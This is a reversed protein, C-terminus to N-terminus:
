PAAFGSDVPKRRFGNPAQALFTNGAVLRRTLFGAVTKKAFLHSECNLGGAGFGFHLLGLFLLYRFFARHVRAEENGRKLHAFM